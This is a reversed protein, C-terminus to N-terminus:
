KRRRRAALAALGAGLALMTAPEPVLELDDMVFFGPYGVVYLEDVLGGYGTPLYVPNSGPAADASTHVLNGQYYLKFRVDDFGDAKSYGAFWAGVVVMPSALKMWGDSYNYVRTPPSHPNYPPQAWDYYEWSGWDAVGMYGDPVPGQGSLDDFNIVYAKAIGVTMGAALLLGCLRKM